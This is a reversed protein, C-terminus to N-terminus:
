PIKHDTNISKLIVVDAATVLSAHNIDLKAVHMYM